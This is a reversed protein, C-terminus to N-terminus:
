FALQECAAPHLTPLSGPVDPVFKAEQASAAGAARLVHVGDALCTQQTCSAACLSGVLLPRM